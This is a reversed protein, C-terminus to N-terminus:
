LKAGAAASRPAPPTFTVTFVAGPGPGIELRGDLQRAMDSVLQLGLSHGRKAEFDAPLGVGTDSMRLRLEPMGDVRQLELRVEGTRGAPFGHKLCNSILENVLLGCSVAQDMEVQVSALDVHLQVAGQSTTLTRFSQIAVQRLYAGLDVAAFTGSRYLSEHLLAMAQIRGQMEGLVSKTDPQASRGAEMRLLSSIVQLNNKVRHHVENLLADKERLSLQIVEAALVRETVDQVTGRSQLPKGDPSFTPECMEEVHKIRGDAMLLRHVIRYPQRDRLSTTYADNVRERDAPHIANLFAEYTADYRAPDIEFLRFIEASWHLRNTVLDLGWSGVKAIRQAENLRDQGELLAKEAQKRKTLEERTSELLRANSLAIAADAAITSLLEVHSADYVNAREYDQLAIVGIVREDLLMPVGLYCRCSAGLLAIGRKPLEEELRDSILIPTRTRIIYETLGNGLPRELLFTRNEGIMRYVPFSVVNTAEDYLAIYLNRNDFVQGILASIREPIEAPSALRNLSHSLQHLLSLAKNKRAVEEEAQKRATIDTLFAINATGEAFQIPAVALHVPFEAGDARLMISEYEVPVPLGQLRRRTREKSDERFQPVFYEHAPRGVMADISPLGTAKLFCPNAYLGNGALNFVGIAIPAQEVFARFRSESERRAAEAQQRETIDRCSILLGSWGAKTIFRATLEVPFVTGDKKRHLRLPINLVQGPTAQAEKMRRSTEEPEASLDTSKKTLLEDREYGYLTSAMTNADIIQGTDSAILLLADSSSEFLTRYQGESERLADETRKRATIDEVSGDYYAIRGAADRIVRCNERVFLATGDRRTWAAELGLIQGEREVREKFTTRSYTPQYGQQELNRQALEDLSSFGLMQLLAPNALVVRGEPTTRYFGIVAHEYLGRFRGESEALAAEAQKRGEIERDRSALTKQLEQTRELVKAELNTRLRSLELHTQVRALLEEQQVPKAIFDWAGLMLGKAREEGDALASLFLIPISRTSEQAQLQRCVEFGDIGPMRVDLLILEPPEAQVAQLAQEGSTAPRVTFGETVLNDVILRLSEVSDDVVLIGNRKKM